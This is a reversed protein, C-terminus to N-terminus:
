PLADLRRQRLRAQILLGLTSVVCLGAPVLFVEPVGFWGVGVDRRQGRDGRDADARQGCGGFGLNAVIGLLVNVVVLRHAWFRDALYGLVTANVIFAMWVQTSYPWWWGPLWALWRVSRFLSLRDALRYLPSRLVLGLASGAGTMVASGPMDRVTM